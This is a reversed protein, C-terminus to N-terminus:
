KKTSVKPHSKRERPLMVILYVVFPASFLLLRFQACVGGFTKQKLCVMGALAYEEM